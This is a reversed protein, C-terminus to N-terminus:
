VRAFLPCVPALRLRPWTIPLVATALVEEKTVHPMDEALWADGSYTVRWRRGDADTLVGRQPCLGRFATTM